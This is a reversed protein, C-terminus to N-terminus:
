GTPNEIWRAYCRACLYFHTRRHVSDLLEQESYQAAEALIKRMEAQHDNALDEETIVPPSPDAYASIHIVYFHSRGPTLEAACRRCIPNDM